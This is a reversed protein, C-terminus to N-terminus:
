ECPRCAVAPAGHGDTPASRAAAPGLLREVLVCDKWQGDLKGHRRQIGVEVFGAARHVHRSAMNDTFLRSTLKYLGHRESAACLELLLRRGLGRGRAEPSVYVAHEGVGEYVCRDSYAGARAWGLIQDAREAVIFPRGDSAWRELEEATRPQTEFTAIRQAIAENYIQAVASADEPRCPRITLTDDRQDVAM